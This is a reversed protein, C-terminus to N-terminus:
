AKSPKSKSKIKQHPEYKTTNRNQNITRIQNLNQQTEIEIQKRVQNM